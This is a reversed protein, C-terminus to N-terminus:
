ELLLVRHTLIFSESLPRPISHHYLRWPCVTLCHSWIRSFIGEKTGGFLTSMTLALNYSQSSVKEVDAM